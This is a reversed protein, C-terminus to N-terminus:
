ILFRCYSQNYSYSVMLLDPTSLHPRKRPSKRSKGSCKAPPHKTSNSKTQLNVLELQMWCVCHESPMLMPLTNLWSLPSRFFPLFFQCIYVSTHYIFVLCIRYFYNYINISTTLYVSEVTLCYSWYQICPHSIFLKLTKIKKYWIHLTNLKGHIYHLNGWCIKVVKVSILETHTIPTCLFFIIKSFVFRKLFNIM